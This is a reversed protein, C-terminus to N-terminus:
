RRPSARRLWVTAWPRMAGLATPGLSLEPPGRMPERETDTVRPEAGPGAEARETENRGLDRHLRTADGGAREARLLAEALQREMAGARDVASRAALELDSVRVGLRDREGRLGDREAALRDREERLVALSQMAADRAAATGRLDDGLRGLQQRM